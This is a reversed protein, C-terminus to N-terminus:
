SAAEMQENFIITIDKFELFIPQNYKKLINYSNNNLKRQMDNKEFAFFHGCKSIHM